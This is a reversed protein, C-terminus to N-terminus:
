KIRVVKNGGLKKVVAKKKIVLMDVLDFVTANNIEFHRAILSFNVMDRRKIFNILEIETPIM